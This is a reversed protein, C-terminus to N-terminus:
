QLHLDHGLRHHLPRIPPLMLAAASRTTSSDEAILNVCM